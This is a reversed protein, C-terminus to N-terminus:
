RGSRKAVTELFGAKLREPSYPDSTGDGTSAATPAFPSASKTSQPLGTSARGVVPPQWGPAARTTTKRSPAGTLRARESEALDRCVRAWIRRVSPATAKQGQHGCIGALAIEDAVVSWSPRHRLLLPSLRAHHFKLWRYLDSHRADSQEEIAKLLRSPLKKRMASDHPPDTRVAM